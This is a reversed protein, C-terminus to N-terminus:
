SFHLRLRAWRVRRSRARLFGTYLFITFPMQLGTYFAVMSTYSGLLGADNVMRYLPVIALQFPLM